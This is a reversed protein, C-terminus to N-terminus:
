VARGSRFLTGALVAYEASSPPQSGKGPMAIFLGMHYPPTHGHGGRGRCLILFHCLGGNGSQDDGQGKNEAEQPLQLLHLLCRFNLRSGMRRIYHFFFLSSFATEEKKQCTGTFFINGCIGSEWQNYAMQGNKEIMKPQSTWSFPM